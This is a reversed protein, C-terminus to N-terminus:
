NSKIQNLRVNEHLDDQHTTVCTTLDSDDLGIAVHGLVGNSWHYFVFNSDTFVDNTHNMCELIHFPTSIKICNLLIYKRPSSGMRDMLRLNLCAM